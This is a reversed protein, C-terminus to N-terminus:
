GPVISQRMGLEVNRMGLKLADYGPAINRYRIIEEINAAFVVTQIVYCLVAKIASMIYDANATSDQLRFTSFEISCPPVLM